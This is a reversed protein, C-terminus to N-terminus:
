NKEFQDVDEDDAIAKSCLNDDRQLLGNIAHYLSRETLGVMTLLDNHLDGLADDFTELIHKSTDM